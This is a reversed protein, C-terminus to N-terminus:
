CSTSANNSELAQVVREMHTFRSGKILLTIDKDLENKIIKILQKQDTFHQAGAGFSETAKQSLEGLTFMREVGSIRAQEGAETHLKEATDGLEGMDGLALWHQGKSQSLVDLAAAYSRPNANYTDDIIQLNKIGVKFQLRGPVSKVVQLGDRIVEMSVNLALACATAALANLVNHKGALPLRLKMTQGEAQLLIRSEKTNMEIVSASVDVDKADLGFSIIRSNGALKKWLSAYDDDANIVAINEEADKALFEFIEGKAKAVGEISGFGELHSPACQTVVAVKPQAIECLSTIEGGHNAGMEIVAYNHKQELNFLTQPVGIENNLNGKTALINGCRSLISSIMEKVTTKGNSGTIAIVPMSFEERWLRAVESLALHTDQVKIVPLKTTVDRDVVVAIAGLKEAMSIYDHGDFSPGSLAVFLEGKKISRTDTSCGEFIVDQGILKADLQDAIHQLSFSIM